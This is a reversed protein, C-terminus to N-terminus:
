RGFGAGYRIELEEMVVEQRSKGPDAALGALPELLPRLCLPEAELWALAGFFDSVRASVTIGRRQALAKGSKVRDASMKLTLRVHHTAIATM